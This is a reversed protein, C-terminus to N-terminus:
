IVIAACILALNSIFLFWNQTEKEKQKMQSEEKQIRIRQPAV